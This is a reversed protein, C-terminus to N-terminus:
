KKFIFPLHQVFYLPDLRQFLARELSYIDTCGMLLLISYNSFLRSM